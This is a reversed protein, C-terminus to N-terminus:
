DRRIRFANAFDTIPSAAAQAHIFEHLPVLRDRYTDALEDVRVALEENAPQYAFLGRSTERVLQHGCLAALALSVASVSVYLGGAMAEASLEQGPRARLYLLAELHLVSPVCARVFREVSPPLARYGM